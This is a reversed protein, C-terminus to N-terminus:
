QRRSHPTCVEWISCDKHHLLSRAINFLSIMSMNTTVKHLILNGREASISLVDAMDAVQM